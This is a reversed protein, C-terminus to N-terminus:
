PRRGRKGEQWLSWIRRSKMEKELGTQALLTAIQARSQRPGLREPLDAIGYATLAALAAQHELAAIRSKTFAGSDAGPARNAVLNPVGELLFDFNEDGLQAGDTDHLAGLPSAPVLAEHLRKEITKRGGLDYGTVRGAGRDYFIAADVRGLAARHRKVYAWAGITGREGGTFLVFRVSRLPRTGAAHIARAAAIVIAANCADDYASSSHNSSNLPAGLLVYDNPQMRGRIEAIVDQGQIPHSAPIGIQRLARTSLTYTEVHVDDVGAQRFAAVAWRVARAGAAVGSSQGVLHHLNEAFSSRGLASQIIAPAVDACTPATVSCGGSGVPPQPGLQGASNIQPLSPPTTKQQASLVGAMAALAAILIPLHIWRNRDIKVEVDERIGLPWQLGKKPARRPLRVLQAGNRPM